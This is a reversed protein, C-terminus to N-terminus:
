PTVPTEKRELLLGNADYVFDIVRDPETIKLPLRLYAHWQTMITRQETTGKAEIRQVELGRSDHDFDTINGEWDTVEDIFGNGDYTYSKNAAACNTSAHGEVQLLKRIGNIVTYHYTTQKGLANTVTVRPDSPDDINTYDITTADAGNAHESSIARGSSDYVWTAFRIGNEDTIGTLSQPNAVDEYHYTKRPNDASNGPTEDPYIVASLMIPSVSYEYLIERGDPLTIMQIQNQALYAFSITNGFTDTIRDLTKDNGDGGNVAALDHTLTQTYGPHSISILRGALDYEEVVNSDLLLIWGIEASQSDLVSQLQLVVGPESEWIGNIENFIHMRGDARYAYAVPNPLSSASYDSDDTYVIRHNFNHGWKEGFSGRKDKDFLAAYYRTLELSTGVHQYDVEMQFKNGNSVNVPNGAVPCEDPQRPDPIEYYPTSYYSGTCVSQVLLSMTASNYSIYSYPNRCIGFCEGTVANNAAARLEGLTDIDSSMQGQFSCDKSGGYPGAASSPPTYYMQATSIPSFAM